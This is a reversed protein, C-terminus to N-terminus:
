EFLPLQLSLAQGQQLAPLNVLVDQTEGARRGDGRSLATVPILLVDQELTQSPRRLRLLPLLVLLFGQLLLLWRRQM